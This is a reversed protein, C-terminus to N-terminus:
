EAAEARRHAAEWGIAILACAAFVVAAGIIGGNVDEIENLSLEQVGTSPDLAMNTDMYSM